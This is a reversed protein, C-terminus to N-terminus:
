FPFGTKKNIIYNNNIERESGGNGWESLSLIQIKLTPIERGAGYIAVSKM